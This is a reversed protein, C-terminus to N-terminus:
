SCTGVKNFAVFAVTQLFFCILIDKAFCFCIILQVVFQPLFSVLKEMVSLEREYSLYIHYFYISFNHRPDTRILHYLLAEHLFDWRYFYFFIGTCLFFVSVSVLAFMVRERTFIDNFGISRDYSDTMDASVESDKEKKAAWTSLLPVQGSGFVRKDLVLVIPLAYILPYIRFHVVLGYWVAAQILNGAFM